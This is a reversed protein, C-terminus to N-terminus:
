CLNFGFLSVFENYYVAYLSVHDFVNYMIAFFNILVTLLVLPIVICM